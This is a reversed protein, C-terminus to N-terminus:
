RRQHRLRRWFSLRHLRNTEPEEDSSGERFPVGTTGQRAAPEMGFWRVTTLRAKGDLAALEAWGERDSRRQRLELFAQRASSESTFVGVLDGTGLRPHGHLGGFLLYHVPAGLTEADLGLQQVLRSLPIEVSVGAAPRSGSLRLVQRSKVYEVRIGDLEDNETIQIARGM